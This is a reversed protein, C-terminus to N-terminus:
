RSSQGPGLHRAGSRYPRREFSAPPSSLAFWHAHFLRTAWLPSAPAPTPRSVMTRRSSTSNCNCLLAAVLCTLLYPLDYRQGHKSRPDPVAAFAKYLSMLAPDAQLSQQQDSSLPPLMVPLATSYM